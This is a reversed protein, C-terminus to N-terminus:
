KLTELKKRVFVAEPEIELAERLLGTAEATQGNAVLVEAFSFSSILFNMKHRSSPNGDFHPNFPYGHSESTFPGPYNDEVNVRVRHRPIVTQLFEAIREARVSFRELESPKFRGRVTWLTSNWARETKVEVKERIGFHTRLVAKAISDFFPWAGMCSKTWAICESYLGLSYLCYGVSAYAADLDSATNETTETQRIYEHYWRLACRFMGANSYLEGILEYFDTDFFDIFELLGKATADDLFNESTYASIVKARTDNSPNELLDVEARVVSPEDLIRDKKKFPLVGGLNIPHLYSFSRFSKDDCYIQTFDPSFLPQARPQSVIKLPLLINDGEGFEALHRFQPTQRGGTLVGMRQNIQVYVNSATLYTVDGTPPNRLASCFCHTFYGHGLTSDERAYDQSMGATLIQRTPHEILKKVAVADGIGRTSVGVLGSFCCDLVFLAHTASILQSLSILDQMGFCTTFANAAEGDHPVLFGLPNTGFLKITEGHGAFFMIFQSKERDIGRGINEAHRRIAQLSAEENTLVTIDNKLFGCNTILVERILAADAAACNLPPYAPDTYRDIGIVLAARQRYPSAANDM